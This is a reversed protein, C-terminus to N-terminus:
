KKLELYFLEQFIKGLFLIKLSILKQQIAQVRISKKLKDFYSSGKIVLRTLKSFCNIYIEGEVIEKEYKYLEAKKNANNDNIILKPFFTPFFAQYSCDQYKIKGFYFIKLEIKKDRPIKGLCINIEKNEKINKSVIDDSVIINSYKDKTEEKELIKSVIKKKDFTMEIRTLTYNPLEPILVSLEIPNDSINKFHLKVETQSMIENIQCLIQITNLDKDLSSSAGM